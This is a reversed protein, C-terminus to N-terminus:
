GDLNARRIVELVHELREEPREPELSEYEEIELRLSGDEQECPRVTFAKGGLYFRLSTVEGRKDSITEAVIGREELTSALSLFVEKSYSM